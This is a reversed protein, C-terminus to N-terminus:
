WGRYQPPEIGLLRAYVIVQARHHTAHDQMVWFVQRRSKPGAFFDVKEALEIEPYSVLAAAVYAYGATIAASLAAKDLKPDKLSLNITDQDHDAPQYGIFRRTLGYLNGTLHQLQQRITMQGPTPSYGLSDEPIRDLLELTYARSNDWKELWETLTASQASLGNAFFCILYCIYKM